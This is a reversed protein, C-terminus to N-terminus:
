PLQSRMRWLMAIALDRPAVNLTPGSSSIGNTWCWERRTKGSYGLICHTRTNLGSRPLDSKGNDPCNCTIVGDDVLHYLIVNMPPGRSSGPTQLPQLHQRHCRFTRVNVERNAAARGSWVVPRYDVLVYVVIASDDNVVLFNEQNPGLHPQRVVPIVAFEAVKSGPGPMSLPFVMIKRPYDLSNGSLNAWRM